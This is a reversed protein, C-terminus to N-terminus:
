LPVTIVVAGSSNEESFPGWGRANRAQVKAVVVAGPPLSYPAAVLASVPIRCRLEVMIEPKSADCNSLDEIFAGSSGKVAVRYADLSEYNNFPATWRIEINENVQLTTVPGPQAPASTAYIVAEDSPVGWGHINRATVRFRYDNGGTM